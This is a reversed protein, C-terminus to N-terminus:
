QFSFEMPNTYMQYSETTSNQVAACSLSEFDIEFFEEDDSVNVEITKTDSEKPYSVASLRSKGFGKWVGAAVECKRDPISIIAM